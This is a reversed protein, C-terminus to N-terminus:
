KAFYAPGAQATALGHQVLDFVPSGFLSALHDGLRQWRELEELYAGAQYIAPDARSATLAETPGLYLIADAQEQYTSAQGDLLLPTPHLQMGLRTGALFALSRRPWQTMASQQRLSDKLSCIFPDIIFLTEPHRQALLTGANPVHHDLSTHLGRLLHYRGALLLARRGKQLVEKEVVAAYHEDRQFWKLLTDQDFPGPTQMDFPPDGLLVRVRRDPPLVWNRARMTRFFQEYIPADWLVNGSATRWIRQLETRAIPEDTLVFRDALEQYLANGFEVVIDSIREPLAPHHLLATVFDHLEQLQHIEGIAVLPFQEMSALTAEVADLPELAGEIMAAVQRPSGPSLQGQERQTPVITTPVYLDNQSM